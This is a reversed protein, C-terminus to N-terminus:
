RYAHMSPGRWRALHVALAVAHPFSEPDHDRLIMGINRDAIVTEEPRAALFLSRAEDDFWPISGIPENELAAADAVPGEMPGNYYVTFEADLGVDGTRVVQQYPVGPERGVADRRQVVYQGLTARATTLMEIRVVRHIGGAVIRRRGWQGIVIPVDEIEGSARFHWGEAQAQPELALGLDLVARQLPQDFLRAAPFLDGLSKLVEDVGVGYWELYGCACCVVAALGGATVPSKGPHWASALPVSHAEGDTIRQVPDLLLLKQGSCKPCTGSNKM